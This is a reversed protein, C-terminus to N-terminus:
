DIFSLPYASVTGKTPKNEAPANVFLNNAADFDPLISSYEELATMYAIDVLKKATINNNRNCQCVFPLLNKTRKTSQCVTRASPDPHTEKTCTIEPLGKKKKSAAM